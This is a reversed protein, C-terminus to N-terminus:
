SGQSSEHKGGWETTYVVPKTQDSESKKETVELAKRKPYRYQMLESAIDAAMKLYTPGHDVTPTKIGLQTKRDIIADYIEDYHDFAKRASSYLEMLAEAPDFGHKDMLEVLDKTKQNLSGKKRGSGPSKPTGKRPAM